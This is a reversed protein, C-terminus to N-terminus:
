SVLEVMVSEAEAKRLALQVTGLRVWVPDGGFACREKIIECSPLIGMDFLRQRIVDSANVARVVARKGTELSYVDIAESM